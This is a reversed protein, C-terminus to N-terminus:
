KSKQLIDLALRKILPYTTDFYLNHGKESLHLWDPAPLLLDLLRERSGQTHNQFAHEIDNLIVSPGAEAAVQRIIENYHANSQQYVIDTFPLPDVDLGTPHNTNLLIHKAGFHIGRILIEALNAGFAEPSVRPLGRDSRWYNCDNMGFQVILMEPAQSQVEYPMNELAQRTIRGNASVNSVMLSTGHKRGLESLRASTQTVWGKHLSVHQGVCISDGFFFIKIKQTM